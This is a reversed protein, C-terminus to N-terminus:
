DEGEEWFAADLVNGLETELLENLFEDKEKQSLDLWEEETFGLDDLEYEYKHNAGYFGIGIHGKIKISM